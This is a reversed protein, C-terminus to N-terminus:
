RQQKFTQSSFAIWGCRNQKCQWIRANKRRLLKASKMARRIDQHCQLVPKPMASALCQLRTKQEKTRRISQHFGKRVSWAIVHLTFSKFLKMRKHHLVVINAMRLLTRKWWVNGMIVFCLHLEAGAVELCCRFNTIMSVLTAVESIKVHCWIHDEWIFKQHRINQRCIQHQSLQKKGVNGRM